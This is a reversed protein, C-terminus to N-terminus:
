GSAQREGGEEEAESVVRVLVGGDPVQQGPRCLVAGSGGGGGWRVVGARPAKVTHEMKMAELVVLPDGRQVRAGEEQLVRVVRGPMPARVAGPLAATGAAGSDAAGVAAGGDAEKSFAPAPWRWEQPAGCAEGEPSLPWLTLVRESRLATNHSYLLAAARMRRGDVTAEVKASVQGSSGEYEVESLTLGRVQVVPTAANKDNDDDEEDDGRGALVHVDFDGAGLLTARARLLAVASSSSPHNNGGGGSAEEEAEEVGEAEPYAMEVEREAHHWLRMSDGAAWAAM